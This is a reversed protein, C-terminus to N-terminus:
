GAKSWKQTISTGRPHTTLTDGDCTLELGVADDFDSEPIAFPVEDLVTGNLAAVTDVIMGSGDWNRPIAVDGNIFAQGTATGSHTQTITIAQDAAPTATISFKYDTDITLTGDPKWVLTQSGDGVVTPAVVGEATLLTLVQTAVDNVDLKWTHGIACRQLATPPDESTAPELLACGSQGILLAAILAFVGVHRTSFM